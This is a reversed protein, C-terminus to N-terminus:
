EKISKKIMTVIAGLVLLLLVFAFIWGFFPIIKVLVLVVVGIVAAQWNVQPGSPKNLYKLFLFGLFLASLICAFLLLLIYLVAATIALYYGVMTILLLIILIPAAILALLGIGLNEWPKEIIGFFM